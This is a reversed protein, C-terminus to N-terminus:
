GDVEGPSSGSSLTHAPANATWSPWCRSTPTSMTTYKWPRREMIAIVLLPPGDAPPDALFALLNGALVPRQPEVHRRVLHLRQINDKYYLYNVGSSTVLDGDIVAHGPDYFTTPGTAFDTTYDVM